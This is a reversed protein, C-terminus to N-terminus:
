LKRTEAITGETKVLAYYVTSYIMNINPVHNCPLINIAVRAEIFTDNPSNFTLYHFHELKSSKNM